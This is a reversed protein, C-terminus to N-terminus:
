RSVADLGEGRIGTVTVSVGNPACVIPRGPSAFGSKVCIHDPCEASVARIRGNEVELIVVGQAGAIEYRGPEDLSVGSTGSPSHIVASSVGSSTVASSIPFMLLAVAALAALLLVDCRTM